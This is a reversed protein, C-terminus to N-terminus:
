KKPANTAKAHAANIRDAASQKKDPDDSGGQGATRGVDGAMATELPGPGGAAAAEPKDEASAALLAKADDVSMETKFALHNALKSRKAAEECNLIGDIRTQAAKAGEKAGEAKAENRASEMRAAEDGGGENGALQTPNENSM